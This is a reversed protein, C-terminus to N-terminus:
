SRPAQRRDLVEAVAPLLFLGGPLLVVLLIPILRVLTRLHGRILRLEDNTWTRGTNRQKMLIHMLGQVALCQGLILERQKQLSRRIVMRIM